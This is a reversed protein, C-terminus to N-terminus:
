SGICPPLTLLPHPYPDIGVLEPYCDTLILRSPTLLDPAIMIDSWVLCPLMLYNTHIILCKTASDIYPQM